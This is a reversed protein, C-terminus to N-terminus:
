CSQGKKVMWCTNPTPTTWGSPAGAGIVTTQSGDVTLTYTFAAVQGSGQATLTYTLQDPPQPSNCSLTFAGQTGSCPPNNAGSAGYTRNDQFYREMNTRAASLLNTADVLQGRLVYDRYAPLAIAALIGIIAVVIMVEILTFGRSM